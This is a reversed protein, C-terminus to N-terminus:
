LGLLIVGEKQLLWLGNSNWLMQEPLLDSRCELYAVDTRKSSGPTVECLDLIFLGTKNYLAGLGEPEDAFAVLLYRGCPSFVTATPPMRITYSAFGLPKQIASELRLNLVLTFGSKQSVRIYVHVFFEGNRAQVFVVATDGHPSLSVTRLRWQTDMSEIHHSTIAVVGKNRVREQTLEKIQMTQFPNSPPELPCEYFVVQACKYHVMGEEILSRGNAIGAVCRGCAAVSVELLASGGFARAPIGDWSDSDEPWNTM